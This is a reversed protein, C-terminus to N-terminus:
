REELIQVKTLAINRELHTIYHILAPDVRMKDAYALTVNRSTMRTHTHTLIRTGHSHSRSRGPNKTSRRAGPISPRPPPLPSTGTCKILTSIINSYYAGQQIARPNSNLQPPRHKIVGGFLQVVQILYYSNIAHIVRSHSPNERSVLIIPTNTNNLGGVPTHIINCQSPM